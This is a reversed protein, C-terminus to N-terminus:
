ADPPMYLIANNRSDRLGISHAGSIGETYIFPNNNSQLGGYIREERGARTYFKISSKDLAVALYKPNLKGSHAPFLHYPVEFGTEFDFGPDHVFNLTGYMTKIKYVQIGLTLESPPPASFQFGFPNSSTTPGITANARGILRLIELSCFITSENQYEGKTRNYHLAKAIKDMWAEYYTTNLVGASVPIPVYFYKMNFMEPDMIGSMEGTYSGDANTQQYKKGWLMTNMVDRKYEELHMTRSKGIFDINLKLKTNSSEATKEVSWTDSIFYQVYNIHSEVHFNYFGKEETGFGERSSKGTLKNRHRNVLLCRGMKTQGGETRHTSSNYNAGFFRNTPTTDGAATNVEELLFVTSVPVAHIATSIATAGDGLFIDGVGYKNSSADTYIAKATTDVIQYYYGSEPTKGSTIETGYNLMEINSDEFDLILIFTQRAADYIFQEVSVVVDLMDDFSQTTTVQEGYTLYDFPLYVRKSTSSNYKLNYVITSATGNLTVTHSTYDYKRIALVNELKRIVDDAHGIIHDYVNAAGSTRRHGLVLLKKESSSNQVFALEKVECGQAGTYTSTYTSDFMTTTYPTQVWLYDGDALTDFTKMSDLTSTLSDAHTAKQWFLKGGFSASNNIALPRNTITGMTGDGKPDRSKLQYVPFDPNNGEFSDTWMAFDQYLTEGGIVSFFSLMPYNQSEHMKFDDFIGIQYAQTEILEIDTAYVGTANVKPTTVPFSNYFDPNFHGTATGHNVGILNPM